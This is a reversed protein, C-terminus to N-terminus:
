GATPLNHRPEAGYCVNPGKPRALIAAAIDMRLQEMQHVPFTNGTFRTTECLAACRRREEAQARMWAERCSQEWGTFTEPTATTRTTDWWEDFTM